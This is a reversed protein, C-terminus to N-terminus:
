LLELLSNDWEDFFGKPWNDFKGNNDVKPYLCMHEFTTADKYFYIFQVDNGSIIGNKISLRIGNMIHDSHTEVIVQAGRMIAMAILEGLKRQGRPHIHAEPNELIIYDEKKATLLSLIVPLVYTLGFGVNIAKYPGVKMNGERFEFRLDSFDLDPNVTVTPLVGPTIEQMWRAVEMYLNSEPKGDFEDSGHRNLYQIAFEGSKNFNRKDVDELNGLNYSKEPIIRDASLYIFQNGSLADCIDATGNQSHIKLIKADPDYCFKSKFECKDTTLAFGIKPNKEEAKEYLVDKGLGLEIYKGNLIFGDRLKNLSYSQRLGLIGQIVTSKGMGNLGTLVTLKSLNIENDKYCKFNELKIKTIM